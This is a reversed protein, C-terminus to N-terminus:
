VYEDEVKRLGIKAPAVHAPEMMVPVKAATYAPPPGLPDESSSTRTPKQGRPAQPAYYSLKQSTKVRKHWAYFFLVIILIGVMLGAWAAAPFNNSSNNTNDIIFARKRDDNGSSYQRHSLSNRPIDVFPRNHLSIVAPKHLPNPLMTSFLVSIQEPPRKDYKPFSLVYCIREKAIHSVSHAISISASISTPSGASPLSKSSSVLM